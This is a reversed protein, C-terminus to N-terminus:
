VNCELDDENKKDSMEAPGLNPAAAAPPCPPPRRWIASRDPAFPTTLTLRSTM